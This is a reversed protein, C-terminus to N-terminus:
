GYIEELNIDWEMADSTQALLVRSRIARALAPCRDEQVYVPAIGNSALFADKQDSVLGVAPFRPSQVVYRGWRMVIVPSVDDIESAKKPDASRLNTITDLVFQGVDLQSLTGKKTKTM